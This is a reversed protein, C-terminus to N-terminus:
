SKKELSAILTKYTNRIKTDNIIRDAVKKELKRLAFDLLLSPKKKLPQTFIELPLNYKEKEIITNVASAISLRNREQTSSLLIKLSPSILDTSFFFLRLTLRYLDVDYHYITDVICVRNEDIRMPTHATRDRPPYFAWRFRNVYIYQGM